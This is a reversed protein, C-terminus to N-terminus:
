SPGPWALGQLEGDKTECNILQSKSSQLGSVRTRGIALGAWGRVVRGGDVGGGALGPLVGQWSMLDKVM